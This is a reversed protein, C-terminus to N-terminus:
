PDSIAFAIISAAPCPVRTRGRGLVQGFRHNGNQAFRHHLIQNLMQCAMADIFDHDVHGIVVFLDFFIETVATLTLM